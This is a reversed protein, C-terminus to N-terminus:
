QTLFLVTCQVFVTLCVCLFFFLYLCVYVCVCACMCVCLVCPLLQEMIEGKRILGQNKDLDSFKLTAYGQRDKGKTCM